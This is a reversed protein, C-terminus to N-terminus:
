SFIECANDQQDPTPEMTQTPSLTPETEWVQGMEVWYYGTNSCSEGDKAVGEINWIATYNKRVTFDLTGSLVVPHSDEPGLTTDIVNDSLDIFDAFSTLLTLNHLTIERGDLVSVLITLYIDASLDIGAFASPGDEPIPLQYVSCDIGAQMYCVIGLEINCESTSPRSSPFTTPVPEETPAMSPASSPAFQELQLVFDGVGDFNHIFVFYNVLELATWTVGSRQGSDRCGYDVINDLCEADDCSTGAYVSITANFGTSNCVNLNVQFSL